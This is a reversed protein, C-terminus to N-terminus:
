LVVFRPNNQNIYFSLSVPIVRKLQIEYNAALYLSLCLVIFMAGAAIMLKDFHKWSIVPFLGLLIAGVVLLTIATQITIM